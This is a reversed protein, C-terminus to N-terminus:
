APTSSMNCVVLDPNALFIERGAYVIGIEGMALIFDGLLRNWEAHSFCGFKQALPQLRVGNIDVIEFPVKTVLTTYRPAPIGFNKYHSAEEFSDSVWIPRDLVHLKSDLTGFHHLIAGSNIEERPYKGLHLENALKDISM